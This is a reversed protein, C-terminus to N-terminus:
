IKARVKARFYKKARFICKRAYIKLFDIKKLTRFTKFDHEPCSKKFKLEEICKYNVDLFKKGQREYIHM